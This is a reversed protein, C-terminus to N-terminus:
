NLSALGSNGLEHWFMANVLIPILEIIVPAAILNSSLCGLSDLHTTPIDADDLEITADILM